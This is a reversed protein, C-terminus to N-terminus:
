PTPDDQEITGDFEPDINVNVDHIDISQALLIWGIITLVV